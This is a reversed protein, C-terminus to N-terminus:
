TGRGVREQGPASPPICFRDLSIASQKRISLGRYLTELHEGFLLEVKFRKVQTEPCAVAYTKVGEPAAQSGAIRQFLGPLRAQYPYAVPPNLGGALTKENCVAQREHETFLLFFDEGYGCMGRAHSEKQEGDRYYWTASM